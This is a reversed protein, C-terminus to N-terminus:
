MESNKHWVVAQIYCSWKSVWKRLDKLKMENKDTFFILSAPYSKNQNCEHWINRDCKWEATVFYKINKVDLIKWANSFASVPQSSQLGQYSM